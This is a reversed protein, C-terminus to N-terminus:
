EGTFKGVFLIVGTSAERIMYVFPRDAHFIIPPKPETEEETCLAVGVTTVAAAESGSENVKIRAKQLMNSIYVLQNCMNPIEVSTQDFVKNIGLQKLTAILNDTTSETEFRPLKLDVTNWELSKAFSMGNKALFEIVNDPTKGKHPLLVTMSWQENGYPIDVAAFTNNKMYKYAYTQHMLPITVPGNATAFKQEKTSSEEFPESWGAKFYIANLLYSVAEPNLENLINPIMGNTKENCWGNIRQLTKPSAFDHSEALADYYYRIDRKFTAKLRYNKNVFISNAINLQVSTDIKPLSNILTKCFGNAAQIGGQRFGLVQELEQETTGEAADNVMSLVYTISLPSYIFSKGSRDADNMAKILKLSFINNEAVLSDMQQESMEIPEPDPLSDETEVDNPDTKVQQNCCVMCCGFSAAALILLLKKMKYHKLYFDRNTLVFAM